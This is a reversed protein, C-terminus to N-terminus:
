MKIYRKFKLFTWTHCGCPHNIQEPCGVANEQTYYLGCAKELRLTVTMSQNQWTPELLCLVKEDSHVESGKTPYWYKEKCKRGSSMGKRKAAQTLSLHRPWYTLLNYTIKVTRCVLRSIYLWIISIDPCFIKLMYLIGWAKWILSGSAIKWLAWKKM